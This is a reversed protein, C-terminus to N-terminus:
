ELIVDKLEGITAKSNIENTKEAEWDFCVQVYSVIESVILALDAKNIVVFGEPFKWQSAYDEPVFSLAQAYMTRSDRQTDLTLMKGNIDRTIASTEKVWRNNAVIAKLNAKATELPLEQAVYYAIHKGEEDYKFNPGALVELSPNIAPTEEYETVVLKVTDSYQVTEFIPDRLSADIGLQNLFYEFYKANWDRPGVVIRENQILTYASM